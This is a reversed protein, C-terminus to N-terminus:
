SEKKDTLADVVQEMRASRSGKVLLTVVGELEKELEEILLQKEQFARADAGFGSATFGSYQGVTYLADIKKM